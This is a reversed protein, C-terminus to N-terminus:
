EKWTITIEGGLARAAAIYTDISKVKGNGSELESIRSQATKLKDALDSTTLGKQKRKERLMASIAKRAKDISNM